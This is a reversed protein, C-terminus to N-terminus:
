KLLDDLASELTKFRFHFHDNLLAGPLARHSGLLASSFEGLAIRLAFAPAPLIAPRHLASALKRTFDTNREPTPATANVPGNLSDSMVAHIIAARLDDLHIWPMWQDGSGLRGGIGLQFVSRLKEFAGGHNGLVIGIRLCVVRLGPSAATEAANEWERCLDALYGHGRRSTEYLIEDGRDGYIGVASANILVSPRDPAPLREIAQTIRRTVGVRSEHFLARKARTWRQDIPEGALNIVVQHGAFNLDDPSQWQDIGPVLGKVSRSVGTSQIGQQALLAPLGRGVFGTVGVIAARQLKQM